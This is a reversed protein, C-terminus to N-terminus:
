GGKIIEKLQERMRESEEISGKITLIEDLVMDCYMMIARAKFELVNFADDKYSAVFTYFKAGKKDHCEIYYREDDEKSYSIDFLQDFIKDINVTNM